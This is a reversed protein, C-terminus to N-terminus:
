KGFPSWRDRRRKRRNTVREFVGDSQQGVVSVGSRALMTAQNYVVAEGTALARALRRGAVGEVDSTHNKTAQIAPPMKDATAHAPARMNKVPAHPATVIHGSRRRHHSVDRGGDINARERM